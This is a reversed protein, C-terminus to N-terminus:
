KDLQVNVTPLTSFNNGIWYRELLILSTTLIIATFILELFGISQNKKPIM